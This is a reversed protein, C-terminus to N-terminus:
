ARWVRKNMTGFMQSVEVRSPAIRVAVYNPDTPGGPFFGNLDYDIVKWAHTRTAEDRHLTATGRVMVHVFDPPAVQFQVDVAPNAAIQLAKPTAPSTALWLTRGEWTPHVIRVRPANGAVTALACWIAKKSATEVEAFFADEQQKGIRTM